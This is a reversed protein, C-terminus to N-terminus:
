SDLVKKMAGLPGLAELDRLAGEIAAALGPVEACAARVPEVECGDGEHDYACYAAVALALGEPVAGGAAVVDKITPLLRVQVKACSNLAIASLRHDLHPNRFRDFTTEAYARLEGDAGDITPIVEGLIVRELFGSVTPDDMCEKVNGKGSMLGLFVMVHHSGNLVRVKRTRYSDLDDTYAVNLGSARLPLREELSDDGEIALLHYPEAIVLLPDDGPGPKTVIRDVLTSRFTVRDRLWVGFAAGLCWDDVYREVVERLRAGNDDVLELPLVTVERNPHAEFRMHLWALLKAPFPDPCTGPPPAQAYAIGAETSNSVVVDLSLLRATGLVVSWSEYPHLWSEVVSVKSHEELSVGDVLGRSTFPYSPHGALALEGRSTLKVGIVSGDWCGADRARQLMWDFHGRLFVGTGFQLIRPEATM